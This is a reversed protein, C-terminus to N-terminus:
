LVWGKAALELGDRVAVGASTAQEIMDATGAGGPFAVVLAPRGEILMRTNRRNGAAPCYTSGDRRRRRPGHHCSGTCPGSWDATMEVFDVPHGVHRMSVAWAKALTDAGTAGGEIVVISACGSFLADLAGWVARRDAYRRGGCVLVRLEETSPAAPLSETM